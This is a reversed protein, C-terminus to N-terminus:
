FLYILRVHGFGWNELNPHESKVFMWGLSDEVMLEECM